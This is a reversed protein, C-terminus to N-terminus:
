LNIKRELLKATLVFLGAAELLTLVFFLAFVSTSVPTLTFTLGIRTVDCFPALLLQLLSSAYFCGVALLFSLFGSAPLKFFISKKMTTCFFIIMLTLFYGAIMLLLLWVAHYVYNDYSRVIEWVVERINNGIMNFTLWAQSVAAFTLTIIDMVGMTLVSALLIKYRPAPTLMDLYAGPPSFMRKGITIDAGINAAFMATFALGSLSVALIRLGVTLLGLSGFIIFFTNVIFIVTFVPGRYRLGTLFAYKFQAKM